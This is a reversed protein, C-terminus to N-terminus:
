DLTKKVKEQDKKKRPFEPPRFGDLMWKMVQVSTPDPKRSTAVRDPDAEWHSIARPTVDLIKALQVQTLGIAERAARFDNHNMLPDATLALSKIM